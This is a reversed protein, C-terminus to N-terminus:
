ELCMPAVSMATKSFSIVIDSCAFHFEGFAELLPFLLSLNCFVSRSTSLATGTEAFSYFGGGPVLVKLKLQKFGSAYASISSPM